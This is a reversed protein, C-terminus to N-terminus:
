FDLRLAGGARFRTRSGEEEIWPSDAADGIFRDAGLIGVLSWQPGVDYTASLTFGIDSFNSEPRYEQHLGGEEGLAGNGYSRRLFESSAWSTSAAYSLTLRESLVHRYAVTLDLLAGGQHEALERTLAGSLQWAGHDFALYGGAFLRGREEPLLESAYGSLEAADWRYGVLPGAQLGDWGTSDFAFRLELPDRAIGQAALRAEQLSDSGSTETSRLPDARATASCLGWGLLTALLLRPLM